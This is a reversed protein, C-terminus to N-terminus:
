EPKAFDFGAAIWEHIQGAPRLEVHGDAYVYHAGDLHQDLQVEKTVAAVVPSSDEASWSAFWNTPHAHDYKPEIPRLKPDEAGEFVVMTRNTAQLKYLSRIAKPSSTSTIYNSIVYSTTRADLREVRFEDEPCIRIEDVNEMHPALTYIWSKNAGSHATEPFRGKHLECYHQMAIGIQRMQSKCQTALAAARAAQVAPLMLSALVGIIAMVILLEILTMARRHTDMYEESHIEIIFRCRVRM